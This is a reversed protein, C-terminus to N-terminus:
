QREDAAHQHHDGCEVQFMHDPQRRPPRGLVRDLGEGAAHQVGGVPAAVADGGEALGGAVDLPGLREGVLGLAPEVLARLTSVFSGTPQYPATLRAEDILTLLSMATVTVTSTSLTVSECPVYARLLRTITQLM